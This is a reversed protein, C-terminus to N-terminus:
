PKKWIWNSIADGAQLGTQKHQLWLACCNRQSPPRLSSGPLLVCRILIPSIRSKFFLLFFFAATDGGGLVSMWHGVEVFNM